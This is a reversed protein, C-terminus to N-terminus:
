KIRGGDGGERRGVDGRGGISEEEKGEESGGREGWKM